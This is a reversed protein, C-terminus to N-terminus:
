HAECSYRASSGFLKAEPFDHVVERTEGPRISILEQHKYQTAGAQSHVRLEVRATGAVVGTNRVVCTVRLCFNFLSSCSDDGRQGMVAFSAIGPVDLDGTRVRNWVVLGGVGLAGLFLLSLACGVTSGLSSTATIPARPPGPAGLPSHATPLAVPRGCRPCTPAADSIQNACDPCTILAVVPRGQPEASRIFCPAGSLQSVNVASVKSLEGNM